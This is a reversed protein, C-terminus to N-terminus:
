ITQTLQGTKSIDATNQRRELIIPSFTARFTTSVAGFFYMQFVWWYHRLFSSGTVCYLLSQLYNVIVNLSNDRQSCHMLNMSWVVTECIFYYETYSFHCYIIYIWDSAFYFCLCEIWTVYLVMQQCPPPTNGYYFPSYM